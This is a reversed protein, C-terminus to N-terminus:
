SLSITIKRLVQLPHKVQIVTYLRLAGFRSELWNYVAFYQDELPYHAEISFQSLFMVWPDREEIAPAVNPATFRCALKAAVVEASCTLVVTDASSCAM